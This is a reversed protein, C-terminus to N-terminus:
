KWAESGYWNSSYMQNSSVCASRGMVVASVLVSRASWGNLVPAAQPLQGLGGLPRLLRRRYRGHSAHMNNARVGAVHEAFNFVYCHDSPTPEERATRTLVRHMTSTRGTRAAGVVFM